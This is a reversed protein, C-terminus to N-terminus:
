PVSIWESEYMSAAAGTDCRLGMFFRGPANLTLQLHVTGTFSGAFQVVPFTAQADGRTGANDRYGLQVNPYTSAGFDLAIDNLYSGFRLFIVKALVPVLTGAQNATLHQFNWQAAEAVMLLNDTELATVMPISGSKLVVTSATAATAYNTSNVFTGAVGGLTANKVLDM